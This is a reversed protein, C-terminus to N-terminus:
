WLGLLRPSGSRRRRPKRTEAQSGGGPLTPSSARCGCETDPSECSSRPTSRLKEMPINDKASLHAPHRKGKRTHRAPVREGEGGPKQGPRAVGGPREYGFGSAGHAASRHCLDTDGSREPARLPRPGAVVLGDQARPRGNPAGARADEVCHLDLKMTRPGLSTLPSRFSKGAGQVVRVLTCGRRSAPPRLM